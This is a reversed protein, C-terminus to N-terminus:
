RRMYKYFAACTGESSVMCPGIPNSPTCTKGYHGCDVPDNKGMLINGCLCGKAEKINKQKINFRKLSDFEEYERRIRLGSLKINGIGRWDSDTDKFIDYMTKMAVTNGNETVVSRYNNIVSHKEAEINDVMISISGLIEKAEFGTIAATVKYSKIFDFYKSGTVASVHGPLILGDIKSTKDDLIAKIAAPVTKHMCLVSFNKIGDAKAKKIVSAILPTTTEFGVGIFVIEKDRNSKALTLSELPNYVIKVNKYNQLSDGGSPVRVMDGFTAIIVDHRKVLELVSNIDSSPTVCVPCGPGSIINVNKSLMSRIGSRAISM